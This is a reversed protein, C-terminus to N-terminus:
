SPSVNFCKQLLSLLKKIAKFFLFPQANVAPHRCRRRRRKLFMFQVVKAVNRQTGCNMERRGPTLLFLSFNKNNLGKNNFYKWVRCSKWRCARWLPSWGKQFLFHSNEKWNFNLRPLSFTFPWYTVRDFQMIALAGQRLTSAIFQIVLEAIEADTFIAKSDNRPRWMRTGSTILASKKQPIRM